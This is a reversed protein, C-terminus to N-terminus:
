RICSGGCADWMPRVAAGVQIRVHEDADNDGARPSYHAEGWVGFRPTIWHVVGGGVDGRWTKHVRHVPPEGEMEFDGNNWSYFGGGLVYPSTRSMDGGMEWRVYPGLGYFSVNGTQTRNGFATRTELMSYQGAIGVRVGTRPIGVEAFAGVVPSWTTADSATAGTAQGSVEEFKNWYTAGVTFGTSFLDKWSPPTTTV